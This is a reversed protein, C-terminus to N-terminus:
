RFKDTDYNVTIGEVEEKLYNANAKYLFCHEINVCVGRLVACFIMGLAINCDCHYVKKKKQTGSYFPQTRMRHQWYQASKALDHITKQNCM